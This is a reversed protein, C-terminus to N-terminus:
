RPHVLFHVQPMEQDAHGLRRQERQHDAQDAAQLAQLDLAGRLRHALAGGRAHHLRDRQHDHEVRQRRDPEHVHIPSPFAPIRSKPNPIRLRAQRPLSPPRAKVFIGSGSLRSAITETRPSTLRNPACVTCSPSSRSTYRPSIMPTTPPEPEPLDTSIRESIPSRWASSPTISTSPTSGR